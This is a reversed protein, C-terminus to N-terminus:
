EPRMVGVPEVGLKELRELAVDVRERDTDSRRFSRCTDGLMPRLINLQRREELDLHEGVDLGDRINYLGAFLARISAELLETYHTCGATREVRQRIERLIGRQFIYLGIIGDYARGAEACVPYPIRAMEAGFDRIVLDRDLLLAVSMDHYEDVLRTVVLVEDDPLATVESHIDRVFDVNRHRALARLEAFSRRPAATDGAESM